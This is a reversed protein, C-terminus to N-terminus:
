YGLFGIALALLGIYFEPDTDWTIHELKNALWFFILGGGLFMLIHHWSIWSDDARRSVSGDGVLDVKLKQIRKHQEKSTFDKHEEESINEEDM